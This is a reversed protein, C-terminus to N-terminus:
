GGSRLMAPRPGCLSTVTQLLLPAPRCDPTSRCRQGCRGRREIRRRHRMGSLLPARDGMAKSLTACAKSPRLSLGKPHAGKKARSLDLRRADNVGGFGPACPEPLSSHRPAPVKGPGTSTGQEVRRLRTSDLHREEGRRMWFVAVRLSSDGAPGSRLPPAPGQGSSRGLMATPQIRRPRWSPRM